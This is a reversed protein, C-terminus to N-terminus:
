SGPGPTVSAHLQGQRQLILRVIGVRHDEGVRLRWAGRDVMARGARVALFKSPWRGNDAFVGNSM